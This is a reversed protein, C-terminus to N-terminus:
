RKSWRPGKRARKLGPKKREKMRPDRTLYGARKLRKGFDENFTILVRATGHRIAEAQSKLGGGMVKAIVKFRDLSKMKKLSSEALKQLLDTSFYETYDKGNVVIGQGKTYLRIRATATKRRGVAEYYREPKLSVAKEKASKPLKKEETTEVVELEIPNQEITTTSM